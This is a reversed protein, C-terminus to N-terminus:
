PLTKSFLYARNEFGHSKYFVHADTRHAASDLEIRTCDAKRALAVMEDLLQTGIGRGRDASNVVLEDLHALYGQQWLNSKITMSCFAVIRGGEVACLYQQLDSALGRKYVALVLDRSLTKDPWLQQLLSTIQEFDEHSCTRIEVMHTKRRANLQYREQM